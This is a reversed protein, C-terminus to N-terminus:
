GVVVVDGVRIPESNEAKALIGFGGGGHRAVTRLIPPAFGLDGQALAVFSCRECRETVAIRTEGISITAGIWEKEIFGELGADTEVVVNPRFRRRDVQSGAPALQDLARLSATTVIHLGAHAYRPKSVTGDRLVSGYRLFRVPFGLSESAALAAEAATM